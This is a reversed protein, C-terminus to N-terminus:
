HRMLRHRGARSRVWAGPTGCGERNGRRGAGPVRTRPAAGQSRHPWHTLQPGCPVRGRGSRRGAVVDRPQLVPGIYSEM